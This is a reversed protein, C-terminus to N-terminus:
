DDMHTCTLVRKTQLAYGMKNLMQKSFIHFLIGEWLQLFQELLKFTAVYRKSCCTIKCGSKIQLKRETLSGNLFRHTYKTLHQQTSPECMADIMLFRDNKTLIIFSILVIHGAGPRELSPGQEKRIM